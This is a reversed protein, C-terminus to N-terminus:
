FCLFTSLNDKLTDLLDVIQFTCLSYLTSLQVCTDRNYASVVHTEQNDKTIDANDHVGFVEPEPILPLSRIYDIYSQYSGHKPAYYIGSPSLKYSDEVIQPTYFISLISNLLRRDKDDTVRGGYNCEGTLYSLADVPLEEYDNLFM